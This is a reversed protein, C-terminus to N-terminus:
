QLLLDGSKMQVVPLIDKFVVYVWGWRCGAVCVCLFVRRFVSNGADLDDQSDSLRFCLLLDAMSLVMM